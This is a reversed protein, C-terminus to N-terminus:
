GEKDSLKGFLKLTTPNLQFAYNLVTNIM